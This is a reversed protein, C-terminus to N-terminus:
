DNEIELIKNIINTTSYGPLFPIIQVTGGNNEVIDAGVISKIDYDGGKVLVDPLLTSILNYPTDEDFLIIADVFQLAALHCARDHENLIPRKTGKIQKISLDSNLGIILTDGKDKAKSLYDLHGLHLIDFCGNTFVIKKQASKQAQVFEKLASVTYIKGEIKEFNNM